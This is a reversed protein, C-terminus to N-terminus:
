VSGGKSLRDILVLLYKKLKTADDPVKGSGSNISSYGQIATSQGGGGGKLLSALAAETCEEWGPM